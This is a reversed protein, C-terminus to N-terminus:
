HRVTSHLIKIMSQTVNRTLPENTCNNKSKNEFQHGSHVKQWQSTDTANKTLVTTYCNKGLEPDTVIIM